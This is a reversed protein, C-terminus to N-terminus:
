RWGNISWSYKQLIERVNGNQRFKVVRRTIDTRQTVCFADAGGITNFVKASDLPNNFNRNEGFYGMNRKGQVVYGSTVDM